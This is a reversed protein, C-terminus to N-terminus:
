WDSQGRDVNDRDTKPNFHTLDATEEETIERDEVRAQERRKVLEEQDKELQEPDVDEVVIKVDWAKMDGTEPDFKMKINQQRNGFDKRYAAALAAEISELVADFRLGKEDCIAQIAKTVDSM